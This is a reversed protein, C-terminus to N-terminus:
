EIAVAGGTVLCRGATGAKSSCAGEGGEWAVDLYKLIAEGKGGGEEVVPVAQEDM